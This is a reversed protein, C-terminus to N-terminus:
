GDCGAGCELVAQSLTPGDLERDVVRAPASDPHELAALTDGPGMAHGPVAAVLIVCLNGRAHEENPERAGVAREMVFHHPHPLWARTRVGSRSQRM